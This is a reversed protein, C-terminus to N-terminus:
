AVKKLQMAYVRVRLEPNLCNALRGVLEVAEKKALTRRDDWAAIDTRLLHVLYAAMPETIEEIPGEADMARTDHVHDHPHDPLYEHQETM